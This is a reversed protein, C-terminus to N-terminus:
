ARTRRNLALATALVLVALGITVVAQGALDAYILIDGAIALMTAVVAL